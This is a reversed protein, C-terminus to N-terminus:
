IFRPMGFRTEPLWIVGLTLLKDYRNGPPTTLVALQVEKPAYGPHSSLHETSQPQNAKALTLVRLIQKLGNEYSAALDVWHLNQLREDLPECDDLRVPIIFIDSAPLEDLLDLAIKIEKQVYGRKSISHASLLVVIYDTAKLIQPIIIKWNQGPLLDESDLWPTVGASQLDDYLKKAVARDERVYSIFVKRM